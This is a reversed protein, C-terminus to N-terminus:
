YVFWNAGNTYLNIAPMTGSLVYSSEYDITGGSAVTVTISGTRYQLEDKIVMLKGGRLWSGGPPLIVSVNGLGRLGVINCEIGIGVTTATSASYHVCLSSSNMILGPSNGINAIRSQALVYPYNPAGDNWMELSGTRIHQDDYTDGFFTSGTGDIEQVNKITYSSASINGDVVLTGTLVLTDANWPSSSATYFILKASGSTANAGTLFQLSGTPGAAQGGSDSCDVYAWGTAM